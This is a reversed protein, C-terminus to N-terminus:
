TLQTVLLIKIMQNKLRKTLILKSLHFWSLFDNIQLVKCFFQPLSFKVKRVFLLLWLLMKFTTDRLLHSKFHSEKTNMPIVKNNIFLFDYKQLFLKCVMYLFKCSERLKISTSYQSLQIRFNVQKCGKLLSLRTSAFIMKFIVIM